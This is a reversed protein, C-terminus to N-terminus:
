TFAVERWVQNIGYYLKNLDTDFVWSGNIKDTAIATREATTLQPPRTYIDKFEGDNNLKMSSTDTDYLIKSKHDTTNLDLIQASNQGPFLYGQNGLHSQLTSILQTMMLHFDPTPAGQKDVHVIPSSLTQVAPFKM